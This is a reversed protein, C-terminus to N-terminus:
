TRGSRYRGPGTPSTLAMCSAGEEVFAARCRGTRAETFTLPGARSSSILEKGDPSFVISSVFGHAKDLAYLEKGTRTQWVHVVGSPGVTSLLQGDPSFALARIRFERADFTALQKGTPFEWVKIWPNANAATALLKGDASLASSFLPRFKEEHGDKIRLVEEGTLRDWVRVMMDRGASVIWKGNPAFAIATIADRHRLRVTGLRSLTNAPLPDGFCDLLPSQAARATVELSATQSNARSCALLCLPCILM